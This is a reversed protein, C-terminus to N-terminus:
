MSEALLPEKGRVKEEKQDVLTRRAEARGTAV